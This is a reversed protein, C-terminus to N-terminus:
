KKAKKEKKILKSEKKDPKEAKKDQKQTKAKIEKFGTYPWLAKPIKISGDAQQHNDVLCVMARETAIATNNLTNVFQLENGKQYKINSRRAQYDTCNSCSGLERYVEQSPFWGEVDITKTAVRGLDESALCVTRFPIELARFIEITNDLILDFENWADEPKCFIFQEVKEFQHIRFIGKTDKGHAGAEKRFCPSIGAYRLPLSNPNLTENSHYANIAHEATGILYLDEGEIKYIMEEFAALPIAGALIDKRLMYPPQILIFGKSKLLDLAFSIIAFNLRVLDGKLYYFRSGAVESAKQTDLLDLAILVDAHDKHKFAAKPVKGYEKLVKNKSADGTPTEKSVINPIERLLSDRKKKTENMEKEKNALQQPILKAEKMLADINKGAKKAESIQISIKNRKARLSDVEEKLDRWKKDLDFVKDVDRENMGRRKQSDKVLEKNERILKIDLM